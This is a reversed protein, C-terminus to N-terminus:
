QGKTPKLYKTQMAELGNLVARIEKFSMKRSNAREKPMANQILLLLTDETLRTQSMVRRVAESVMVIEDAIKNLSEGRLRKLSLAATVSEKPTTM